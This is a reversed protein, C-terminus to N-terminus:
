SLRVASVPLFPFSEETFDTLFLRMVEYAVEQYSMEALTEFPVELKPIQSPVYLGGGGALGNLIAKSATVQESADRTNQYIISM